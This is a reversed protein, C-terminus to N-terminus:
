PHTIDNSFPALVRYGSPLPNYLGRPNCKSDTNVNKQAPLALVLPHPTATGREAGQRKWELCKNTARGDSM